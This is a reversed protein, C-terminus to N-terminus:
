VDDHCEEGTCLRKIVFAGARKGSPVRVRKQLLPGDAGGGHGLKGFILAPICEARFRCFTVCLRMEWHNLLAFPLWVADGMVLLTMLRLRHQM